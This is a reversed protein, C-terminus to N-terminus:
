SQGRVTLTGIWVLAIVRVWQRLIIPWVVVMPLIESPEDVLKLSAVSDFRGLPTFDAMSDM